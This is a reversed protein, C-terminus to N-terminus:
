LCFSWVDDPLRSTNLRMEGELRSREKDQIERNGILQKEGHRLERSGIIGLLALSLRQTDLYPLATAYPPSTIAVDFAEVKRVRLMPLLASAARRSDGYFALQMTREKPGLHA